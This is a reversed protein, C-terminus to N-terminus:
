FNFPFRIKLSREAPSYWGQSAHDSTHLYCKVEVVDSGKTFTFLRSMPMCTNGHYKTLASINAFNVGFRSEIHSRGNVVDDPHTHTHAGLWLDMAPESLDLFSEIRGSDPMNGVFYIFSAGQPAGDEFRGHYGGDCGENLGTAVTTEKIMHHACTIVIRDKNEKIKKKWWSFTEESIAGAPYGGRKGEGRGIPKPLDNRDALMLFTINGVDFSYHEWTGEVKFPRKLNDVGSFKINEGTPDLWKRFWWQVPNDGHRTADHNGIVDYFHERPHKTSVSYQEVVLKGEEDDPPFQSGTFDGLNVCIDWDFSQGGDDGGNESHLIAESLSKRGHQIDTGVHADSIAWLKFKDGSFM